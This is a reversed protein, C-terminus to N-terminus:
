LGIEKRINTLVSDVKNAAIGKLSDVFNLNRCDHPQHGTVMKGNDTIIAIPTSDVPVYRGDRDVFSIERHCHNCKKM